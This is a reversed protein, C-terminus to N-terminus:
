PFEISIIIKIEFYFEYSENFYLSLSFPSYSHQTHTHFLTLRFTTFYTKRILNRDLYIVKRLCLFIYYSVKREFWSQFKSQYRTICFAINTNILLFTCNTIYQFSLKNGYKAVWNISQLELSLKVRHWIYSVVQVNVNLKFIIRWSWCWWKYLFPRQHKLNLMATITKFHNYHHVTLGSSVAM